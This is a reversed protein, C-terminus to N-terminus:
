ELPLLAEVSVHGRAVLGALDKYAESLTVARRWDRLGAWRQSSFGAGPMGAADLFHGVEHLLALQRLAAAAAISIARPSIEGDPELDFGFRGNSGGLDHAGVMSVPIPPLDGDGHVRNIASVADRLDDNAIGPRILLARSVSVGSPRM